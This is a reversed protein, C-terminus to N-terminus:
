AISDKTTPEQQEDTENRLEAKDMSRVFPYYIGVSLALTILQIVAGSIKGGTALYGSIVPPMTWPVVIGAPKAVLGTAMSFYTIIATVMPTLVFPILLKFNLVVPLGFLVPENINFVGPAVSLSGMAKNNKSRAFLWLCIVLGITTGGGGMWVFNMMFENTVIHPLAHGAQFAIRNADTNQLWIPQIVPNITNAGHIGVFWFLSNLAIIILTGWLSSGLAGLPKGLIGTLLTHINEVGALGLLLYVLSWVLIVMFGPILAAFSKEVAVPVGEPMKITFNKQVFFRFIEASILGILIAVFLGGSGVFAYPIGSGTKAVVDPTVIVFSALAVVGASVGDVEYHDALSRAIGFVAIIAMLGFSGNVIKNFVPALEIKALWDTYNNIPLNGLILFFSGIIILPMSLLIGDRLARLHRQSGIAGAIAEIKELM